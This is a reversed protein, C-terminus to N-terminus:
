LKLMELLFPRGVCCIVMLLGLSLMSMSEPDVNLMMLSFTNLEVAGVGFNFGDFTM